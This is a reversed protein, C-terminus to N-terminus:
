ATVEERKAPLNELEEAMEISTAVPLLSGGGPKKGGSQAVGFASYVCVSAVVCAGGLAFETTVTFDGLFSSIVGSAIISIAIASNKVINDAFKIVAAILLGGAANTFVALCAAPKYGSFFGDRLIERGDNLVVGFVACFVAGITALQVNRVILSASSSSSDKLIRELYIGSFSSTLCAVAVAVVGMVHDTAGKDVETEGGPGPAVVVRVAGASPLQTLTLGGTLVVLSIWQIWSLRKRLLGVAFAATTLIRLQQIVQHTTADLRSLAFYNLWNQLTYLTAPVTMRTWGSGEGFAEERLRHLADMTGTLRAPPQSLDEESSSSRITPSLSDDSSTTTTTWVYVLSCLCGKLLETLLVATSAIARKGDDDSAVDTGTAPSVRRSWRLILISWSNQASLLALLAFKRHGPSVASVWDM